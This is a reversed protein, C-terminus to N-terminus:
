EEGFLNFAGGVFNAVGDAADGIIDAATDLLTDPDDDPEPVPQKPRRNRRGGGNKKRGGRGRTELEEEGFLGFVGNAFDAVGDAAGGIIDAAADLLTDPDDDPVPKPDRIRGKGKGRGGRKKDGKNKKDKKGRTELEEEGFISFVGNAFDAVGDAAGGIIDAATDLLTDPDEAEPVPQIAPRRRNKRRRGGNNDKGRRRRKELEEEGFISFVGNAFDAVGDAADGIIDAAADLLTDPDEPEPVPQKPRRRNKRGGGNRDRRKGRTELEEEGFLRAYERKELEEEGYQTESNATGSAFLAVCLTLLVVTTVAM